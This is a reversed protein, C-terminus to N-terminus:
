NQMLDNRIGAFYAPTQGDCHRFGIEQARLKSDRLAQDAFAFAQVFLSLLAFTM